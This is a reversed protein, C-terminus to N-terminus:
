ALRSRIRSTLWWVVGALGVLLAIALLPAFIGALTLSLAAADGAASAAITGTGVTAADIVPRTTARGVHIALAIFVGAAVAWWNIAASGDVATASGFVIGGSTPRILTQVIDNISDVAPIKDAVFEIVLLAAVVGLLIPHALWEWGAPLHVVDSFRALLGFVLLPVYANLGAATALSVATALDM